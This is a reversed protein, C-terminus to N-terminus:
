PLFPIRGTVLVYAFATASILKAVATIFEAAARITEPRVWGKESEM